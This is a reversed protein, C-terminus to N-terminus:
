PFIEPWEPFKRIQGRLYADTSQVTTQPRTTEIKEKAALDTSGSSRDHRSQLICLAGLKLSEPTRVQFAPGCAMQDLSFIALRVAQRKALPATASELYGITEAL